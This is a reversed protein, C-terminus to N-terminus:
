KVKKLICLFLGYEMKQLIKLIYKTYKLLLKPVHFDLYNIKVRM